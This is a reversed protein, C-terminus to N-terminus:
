SLSELTPVNDKPVATPIIEPLNLRKSLSIDPYRTSLYTHSQQSPRCQDPKCYSAYNSHNVPGKEKYKPLSSAVNVSPDLNM